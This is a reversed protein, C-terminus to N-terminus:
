PSQRPILNSTHQQQDLSNQISHTQSNHAMTNLESYTLNPQLKPTRSAASNLFKSVITSLSLESEMSEKM